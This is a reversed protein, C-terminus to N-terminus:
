QRFRNTIPMRRGFWAKETVRILPPTQRRKYENFDVKCVVDMVVEKSIGKRSLKSVIENESLNNEIYLELIEDLVEYPPLSDQDKQNPRLEASPAKDLIADPIVHSIQNRYKCVQYVKTKYVDGLVALGGCMDGYLTCYGMALESKNGTSLLLCGEDNSIYMLELARLRAQLNENALSIESIKYNNKRKRESVRGMFSEYAERIPQTRMEIGLNQALIESDKYSGESSYRSPMTVGIVSQPGLADRALTAVLASDIGGSLGIVVKKFGNKQVYDRLGLVLADYTEAAPDTKPIEIHKSNKVGFPIEVFDLIEEFAKSRHTVNGQPDAVFSRGDFVLDDQGGVQNVYVMWVKNEKARKRVVRDRMQPAKRHYPSASINIVLQVGKKKLLKTPKVPYQEDWIDECITTGIQIGNLMLTKHTTAPEFFIGELFVDYTPLLTKHQVFLIKGNRIVALANHNKEKPNQNRDIFGIVSVIKCDKTKKVISQLSKIGADVFAKKNALDWVPYGSIALEPFIVLHAQAYDAAKIYDVIKKQNSGFDGVAPDIQAIAVKLKKTTSM